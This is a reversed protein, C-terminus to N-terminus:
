IKNTMIKEYLPRVFPSRQCHIPRACGVTRGRLLQVSGAQWSIGGTAANLCSANSSDAQTSDACLAHKTLRRASLPRASLSGDAARPSQAGQRASQAGQSRRQAAEASSSISLSHLGLKPIQPAPDSSSSRSSSGTCAAESSSGNPLALQFGPALRAVCLLCTFEVPKYCCKFADSAQAGTSIFPAREEM